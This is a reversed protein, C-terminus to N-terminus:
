SSEGFIHKITTENKVVTQLFLPAQDRQYSYYTLAWRGAENQVPAGRHFRRTDASFFHGANGIETTPSVEALSNLYHPLRNSFQFTAVQLGKLLLSQGFTLHQFAGDEVSHVDSLYMFSKVQKKFQSDQHWGGGSGVDGPYVVNAMVTGDVKADHYEEAISISKEVFNSLERHALLQELGFIRYERALPTSPDFKEAFHSKFVGEVAQRLNFNRNKM